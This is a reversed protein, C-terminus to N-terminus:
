GFDKPKASTPVVGSVTTGMGPSSVISLIGGLASIRDAMSAFGFGREVQASDFGVGTDAVEFCLSADGGDRLGVRVTAAQGAHKAANQMAELICFFVAREIEESYREVDTAEVRIHGGFHRSVDTVAAALGDEELRPLSIGHSISRLERLSESLDDGVEGLRDSLVQDDTQDRILDVEMHLAILRQQAGDHLDREIRRREVQRATAIRDSWRGLERQMTRKELVLLLASGVADILEPEERLTADHDIAIAPDADLKILTWERGPGPDVPQLSDGAADVYRGPAVWFALRLQPDDLTEATLREMEPLGAAENIGQVIRELAVGAFAKAQVPAALFGLPLTVRAATVGVLGFAISTRSDAGTAAVALSYGAFSVLWLATSASVAMLARRRPRSATVLRYVLVGLFTVAYVLRLASSTAHFLRALDPNDLSLVNRPCSDACRSLPTNGHVQPSFLVWPYYGLVFTATLTGMVLKGLRDLRGGPFILIVYTALLVLAGEVLVGALPLIGLDIAQLPQLCFLIGLAILLTGLRNGPRHVRWYLGAVVFMLASWATLLVFGVPEVLTGSLLVAAGGLVVLFVALSGIAQPSAWVSAMEPAKPIRRKRAIKLRNGEMFIWAVRFRAIVTV